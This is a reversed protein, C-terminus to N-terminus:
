GGEKNVEAREISGSKTTDDPTNGPAFTSQKITGGKKKGDMAERQDGPTDGSSLTARKIKADGSV